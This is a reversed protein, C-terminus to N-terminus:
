KWRPTMSGLSMLTTALMYRLARPTLHQRVLAAAGSAIHRGKDSESRLRDLTHALTSRTAVVCNSAEVLLHHWCEEWQPEFRIPVGGFTGIWLFRDWSTSNGDADMLYRHRNMEGLPAKSAILGEGNLRAIFDRDVQKTRSIKCDSGPVGRASRCLSVRKNEAYDRSGTSTGRFYVTDSKREWALPPPVARHPNLLYTNPILPKSSGIRRAFAVVDPSSDANEGDSLDIPVYLFALDPHEDASKKIADALIRWRGATRRYAQISPFAVYVTRGLRARDYSWTTVLSGESGGEIRIAVPAQSWAQRLRHPRCALQVIGEPRWWPITKYDQFDIRDM